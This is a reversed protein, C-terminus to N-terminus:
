PLVSMDFSVRVTTLETGDAFSGGVIAVAEGGRQTNPQLRADYEVTFRQTTAPTEFTWTRYTGDSSESDPTPHLGNEDFMALFESPIRITLTTPFPEGAAPEVTVSFPTALGPRTVSAHRIAVEIQGNAATATATTVGTVGTVALLVIAAVVAITFWRLASELRDWGPSPDAPETLWSETM